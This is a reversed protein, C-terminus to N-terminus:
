QFFKLVREKGKQADVHNKNLELAKDYARLAHIYEQAQERAYGLRAWWMGDLSNSQVAASFAIDAHRFKAMRLYIEGMFYYVEAMRIGSPAYSIYTQFLNLAEANKGLFFCSEAESEILRPDYQVIKRGKKTIEYAKEYQKDALLAWAMVVYSELNKPTEKIEHECVEIAQKYKGVKFLVLADPKQAHACISLLLFFIIFIKARKM